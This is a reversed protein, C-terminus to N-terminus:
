AAARQAQPVRAALPLLATLAVLAGIPVITRTLSGTADEVLSFLLPGLLGSVSAATIVYGYDEGMYRTGYYDAVLAPAIALVGGFCLLAVAFVMSVTLPAHMFTLAALAAGELLFAVVLAAIRGIADSIWAWVLRGIGNFISLWGYTLSAVAASAGTLQSYVPVANGLLALGAFCDVFVIAWIVYFTPTRLMESPAFEHVRETGTAAAVPAPRLGLACLVGIALLAIGSWVFVSAIVGIGAADAHAAAVHHVGAQLAANRAVIIRNAADATRVFDPFAGVVNNFVLSGAGFGGLIIGNALGRNHAFWRTACAGPVVYAMGAGVGGVLGYSVYLAALGFRPMTLGALVYGFGWFAAGAVAVPRAGFRDHLTGGILAGLGIGCAMLAFAFAVQVSSWGFFAMLPRTFLSWSYATGICMMLGTCGALVVWRRPDRPSALSM